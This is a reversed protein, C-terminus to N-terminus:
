VWLLHDAPQAPPLALPRVRLKVGRLITDKDAADLLGQLGVLWAHHRVHVIGSTCTQVIIFPRM